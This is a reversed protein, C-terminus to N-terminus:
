VSRNKQRRCLVGLKLEPAQRGSGPRRVPSCSGPVLNPHKSFTGLCNEHEASFLSFFAALKTSM